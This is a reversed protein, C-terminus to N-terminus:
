SSQPSVFTPASATSIELGEMWVAYVWAPGAPSSPLDVSLSQSPTGEANKPWPAYSTLRPRSRVVYVGGAWSVPLRPLDISVTPLAISIGVKRPRALDELERCYPCMRFERTAGHPTQVIKPRSMWGCYPCAAIQSETGVKADLEWAEFLRVKTTALHALVASRVREGSAGHAATPGDEEAELESLAHLLGKSTKSGEERTEAKIILAVKRLLELDGNHAQRQSNHGIAQSPERKWQQSEVDKQVLAVGTPPPAAKVDPDGFLLFRFGIEKITPNTEFRALALGVPEGMKLAPVLESKIPGYFSFSLEPVAVVAGVTHNAVLGSFISWGPDVYPGGLYAGYCTLNVFVRAAIELPAILSGTSVAATIPQETVRCFGTYACEPARDASIEGPGARVCLAAASGLHQSIGDGHGKVMLMGAGSQLQTRMIDRAQRTDSSTSPGIEMHGTTLPGSLTGAASATLTQRHLEAADRGWIVGPAEQPRDALCLYQMLERDLEPGCYLIVAIGGSQPFDSVSDVSMSHRRTLHGYLAAEEGGEGLGIVLGQRTPQAVGPQAEAAILRSGFLEAVEALLQRETPSNVPWVPGGSDDTLYEIDSNPPTAVPLSTRAHGAARQSPVRFKISPAAVAPTRDSDRTKSEDSM